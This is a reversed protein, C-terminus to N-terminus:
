SAVAEAVDLMPWCWHLGGMEDRLVCEGWESWSILEGEAIVQDALKVVVRKGLLHQYEGAATSAAHDTV